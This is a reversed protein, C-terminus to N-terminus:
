CKLRIHVEATGWVGKDFVLPAAGMDSCTQLKAHISECWKMMVNGEYINDSLIWSLNFQVSQTVIVKFLMNESKGEKWIAKAVEVSNPNNVLYAVM